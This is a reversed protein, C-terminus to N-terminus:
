LLKYEKAQKIAQTRSHVGLKSYLNKIHSRVTNDSLTLKEQIAKNSLGAAILQLIESERATLSIPSEKEHSDSSSTHGSEKSFASLLRRKYEEHSGSTLSTQLLDRLPLGLDLFTRIYQGPLALELANDLANVADKTQNQIDLLLAKLIWADILFAKLEQRVGLDILRDVLSIIQSLQDQNGSQRIEEYRIRVYVLYRSREILPPTDDLSYGSDTVWQLASALDGLRLSCLAKWAQLSSDMDRFEPWDMIKSLKDLSKQTKDKDQELIALDAQVSLGRTMIDAVGTREGWSLGAKCYEAAKEIENWEYYVSGLQVQLLGILPLSTGVREIRKIGELLVQEAEPLKGLLQKIIGLIHTSQNYVNLIRESSYRAENEIAEALEEATIMEGLSMLGVVIQSRAVVYLMPNRNKLLESAQTALTIAKQVDGTNRIFISDLLLVEAKVRPDDRVLEIYHLAEKVENRTIHAGAVYIATLPYEQLVDSPLAKGWQRLQLGLSQNWLGDLEITAILHAAFAYDEGRLSYGAAEELFGHGMCWHAARSYLENVKDKPWNQEVHQRLLQAFMHHYRYWYREHDLPVIFLNANALDGILTQYKRAADKQEDSSDAYFVAACLEANFRELISTGLLFNKVDTTQHELVETLLYEAVFRDKGGYQEISKQSYDTEALSLAALQLGAVWGETREELLTVAEASLDLQMTHRFFDTSETENFRLENSTVENLWNRSRWRPLPLSPNERTTIIVHVQPPLYDVITQLIQHIDSQQIEHYDDLVLLLPKNNLTIQNLLEQIITEFIPNSANELVDQQETGFNPYITQIGAILYQLFRFTENDNGDLSIWACDKLTWPHDASPLQKIWATALTTKGFGAPASIITLRGDLGANLKEILRPRPVLDARLQPVILKTTLLTNAVIYSSQIM